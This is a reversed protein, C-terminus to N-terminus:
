QVLLFSPGQLTLSLLCEVGTTQRWDAVNGAPSSISYPGARDCLGCPGRSWSIFFYFVSDPKRLSFLRGPVPSISLDATLFSHKHSACLIQIWCGAGLVWVTQCFPRYSPNWPIQLGRRAEVPEQVCAICMFECLCVCTCMFIIFSKM